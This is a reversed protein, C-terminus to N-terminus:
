APSDVFLREVLGGLVKLHRKHTGASVHVARRALGAQSFTPPHSKLLATRIHTSLCRARRPTKVEAFDHPVSACVGDFRVFYGPKCGSSLRHSASKPSVPLHRALYAASPRTNGLLFVSNETLGLVNACFPLPFM